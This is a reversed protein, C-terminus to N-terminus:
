FHSLRDYFWEFDNESLLHAKGVQPQKHNISM